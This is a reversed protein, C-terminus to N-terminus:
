QCELTQYYEFELRFNRLLYDSSGFKNWWNKEKIKTTVFLYNISKWLQLQLNHDPYLFSLITLQLYCWYQDKRLLFLYALGAEFFRLWTFWRSRNTSVYYAIPSFYKKVYIYLQNANFRIKTCWKAMTANRVVVRM